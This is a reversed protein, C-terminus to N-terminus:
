NGEGMLIRLVENKGCATKLQAMRDNNQLVRAIATLLKVHEDDGKGAFGIVLHVTKDEGWEIGRPIRVFVVSNRLVENKVEDAGHPLAVGETICTNFKEEKLFMGQVYRPTVDGCELMVKGIAEIVQWKSDFDPDLLIHQADLSLPM